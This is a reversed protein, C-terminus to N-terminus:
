DEDTGGDIVVCCDPCQNCRDEIYRAGWDSAKVATTEPQVRTAEPNENLVGLGILTIAIVGVALGALLISMLTSFEDRM